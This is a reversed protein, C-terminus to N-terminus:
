FSLTYVAGPLPSSLSSSITGGNAEAQIGLPTLLVKPATLNYVQPTITGPYLTSHSPPLYLVQIAKDNEEDMMEDMDELSLIDLAKPGLCM